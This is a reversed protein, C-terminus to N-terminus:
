ENNPIRGVKAKQGKGKAKKSGGGKLRKWRGGQTPLRFTRSIIRECKVVENNM